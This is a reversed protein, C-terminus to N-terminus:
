GDGASIGQAEAARIIEFDPTYTDPNWLYIQYCNSNWLSKDSPEYIKYEYGTTKCSIDLDELDEKGMRYPETLILQPWRFGKERWVTTHDFYPPLSYGCAWKGDIGSYKKRLGEIPHRHGTKILNTRDMFAMARELVDLMEPHVSPIGKFFYKCLPCYKKYHDYSHKAKILKLHNKGENKCRFTFENM